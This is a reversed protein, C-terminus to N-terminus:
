LLQSDLFIESRIFGLFENEDRVVLFGTRLGYLVVPLIKKM